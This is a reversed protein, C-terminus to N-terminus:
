RFIKCVELLLRNWAGAWLMWILQIDYWHYSFITSRYKSCVQINSGLITKVLMWFNSKFPFIELKTKKKNVLHPNCSYSNSGAPGTPSPPVLSHGVWMIQWPVFWFLVPIAWDSNSQSAKNEAPFSLFKWLAFIKHWFHAGILSSNNRQGEPPELLWKFLSNLPSVIRWMALTWAIFQARSHEFLHQLFTHREWHQQISFSITSKQAIRGSIHLAAFIWFRNPFGWGDIVCDITFYCCSTKSKFAEWLFSPLLNNINVKRPFAIM